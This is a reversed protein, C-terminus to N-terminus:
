YTDHRSIFGGAKYADENAEGIELWSEEGKDVSSAYENWDPNDQLEFLPAFADDDPIDYSFQSIYDLFEKESNGTYPFEENDRFDEPDFEIVQTARWITIKECKRIQYKM